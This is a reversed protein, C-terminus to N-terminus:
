IWTLNQLQTLMIYHSFMYISIGIGLSSNFVPGNYLQHPCVCEGSPPFLENSSFDMYLDGTSQFPPVNGEEMTIGVLGDDEVPSSPIFLSWDGGADGYSSVQVFPGVFLVSRLISAQLLSSRFLLM